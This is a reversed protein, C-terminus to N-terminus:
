FELISISQGAKELAIRDIGEVQYFLLAPYAGTLVPEPDTWPLPGTAIEVLSAM